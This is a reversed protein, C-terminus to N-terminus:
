FLSLFLMSMVYTISIVSCVDWYLLVTSNVELDKFVSGQPVVFYTQFRLTAILTKNVSIIPIANFFLGVSQM